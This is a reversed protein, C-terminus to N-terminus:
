EHQEGQSGMVTVCWREGLSCPGPVSVLGPPTDSLLRVSWYMQLIATEEGEEGGRGM